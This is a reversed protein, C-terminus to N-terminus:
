GTLLIRISGALAVSLVLLNFTRRPLRPQLWAGSRVGAWLLPIAIATASVVPVTLIEANWYAVLRLPNLLFFIAWITGVIMRPALNQGIMIPVLLTAGANALTSNLGSISGIGIGAWVPMPAINPPRGRLEVFVQYAAIILCIAGIFFRLHYEPIWTLVWGGLIVGAAMGPFFIYAMRRDWHRWMQRAIGLSVWSTCIALYVLAFKAPFGIALVPMLTIGVGGGFTRMLFGNGFAAICILAWQLPSFDFLEIGM